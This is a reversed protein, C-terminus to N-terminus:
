PLEYVEVLAVGTSGNFGSVQFTYSGATLTVVVAADRSGSPLAFAGAASFTSALSPDWDDNSAVQVGSSNFVKLMPDSLVGTVGFSALAPGIARVLYRKSGSGNLVVGTILINSGTGVQVRTSTNAMRLDGSVVSSGGQTVTFTQGAISLTGQRSSTSSNSAVSYGVTGSSSGSSGSTVTLWSTNSTASWSGTGGSVTVTVSGSGGSADYPASSPSIGYSAIPLSYAITGSTRSFNNASSPDVPSTDLITVRGFVYYSGTAQSSPWNRVMNDLGTQSLSLSTSSGSAVSVNLGVDGIKTDDGDGFTANSSLYFEVLVYGNSLASSGNNGISFSCGNFARTTVSAPNVVLNSLTLDTQPTASTLTALVPM